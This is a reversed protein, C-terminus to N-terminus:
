GIGDGDIKMTSRGNDVVIHSTTSEIASKHIAKGEQAVVNEERADKQM